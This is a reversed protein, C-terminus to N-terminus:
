LIHIACVGFKFFLLLTKLRPTVLLFNFRSTLPLLFGGFLSISFYYIFLCMTQKNNEDDSGVPKSGIVKHNVAM